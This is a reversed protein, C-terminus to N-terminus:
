TTEEEIQKILKNTRNFGSQNCYLTHTDLLKQEPKLLKFLKGNEEKAMKLAM